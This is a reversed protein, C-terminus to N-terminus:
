AQRKTARTLLYSQMVQNDTYHEDFLERLERRFAALKQPEKALLEAIRGLPGTAEMLTVFHGFSLTAFAMVGREFRIETVAEGLRQRITNPDGWLPPPAAGQPPPLYRGTLAFMRGVMHEPPWTAFAIRGGPVLVRLMHGVAVEPRPAFMHGFQSVVVDFSGDAFPLAEADGEQFHVDVGAVRANQRAREVLAPSLDLGTVKAGARAATIAVPGTGCGVDLVRQGAAIRAFRVLHAAPPTTFTELPAFSSWQERQRGKFEAFPDPGPAPNSTM